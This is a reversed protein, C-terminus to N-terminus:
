RATEVWQSRRYSRFFSARARTGAGARGQGCRESSFRHGCAGARVGGITPAVREEPISRKHEEDHVFIAARYASWVDCFQRARVLPDIDQWFADLLRRYSVKAIM